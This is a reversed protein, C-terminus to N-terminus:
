APHNVQPRPVPRRLSALCVKARNFAGADSGFLGLHVLLRALDNFRLDWDKNLSLRDLIWKIRTPRSENESCALIIHCANLLDESYSTKPDTM